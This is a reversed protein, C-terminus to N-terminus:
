EEDPYLEEHIESIKDEILDIDTVGSDIYDILEQRQKDTEFAVLAGLIADEYIGIAELKYKMEKKLETDAYQELISMLFAGM